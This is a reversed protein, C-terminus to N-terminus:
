RTVGPRQAPHRGVAPDDRTLIGLWALRLVRMAAGKRWGLRLRRDGYRWTRFGGAFPRRSGYRPGMSLMADGGTGAGAGAAADWAVKPNLIVGSGGAASSRMRAWPWSSWPLRSRGIVSSCPPVGSRQQKRLALGPSGIASIAQDGNWSGCGLGYASTPGTKM